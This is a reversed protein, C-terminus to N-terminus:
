EHKKNLFEPHVVKCNTFGFMKFPLWLLGMFCCGLAVQIAFVFTNQAYASHKGTDSKDLEFMLEIQTGRRTRRM